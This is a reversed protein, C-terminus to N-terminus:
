LAECFTRLQRNFAAAQDWFPAHGANPMLCVQAHRIGATHQDVIAPDLVRDEAGHVLLTPIHLKPLLDDNDLSRSFLAQRVFPPVSINYGLMQYLDDASPQEVFFHRLFLALSRATEEVDVAFLGPVLSRIDPSIVAMAENSGLKTIASVFSIGGLDAEGYHRIYDLIVLPGYSWGCLMPRDLTLKQMLARLDDAWLRSDDHGTRPKDSLGHGRLDLAILRYDNALDSSLQRSWTLWSQSLGHIFVIPRGTPNGTEVVHLRAGGGGTITTSVIEPKGV